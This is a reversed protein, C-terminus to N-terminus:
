HLAAHSKRSQMLYHVDHGIGRKHHRCDIGHQWGHFSEITIWAELFNIGQKEADELLKACIQPIYDVRLDASLMPSCNARGPCACSQNSRRFWSYGQAWVLLLLQWM